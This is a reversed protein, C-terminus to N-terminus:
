YAIQCSARKIQIRVFTIRLKKPDTLQEPDSVRATREGQTKWRHKIIREAEKWDLAEDKLVKDSGRRLTRRGQLNQGPFVLSKRTFAAKGWM